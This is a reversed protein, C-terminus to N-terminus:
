KREEIVDWHLEDQKEKVVLRRRLRKWEIRDITCDNGDAWDALLERWDDQISSDNPDEPASLVVQVIIRDPYGNVPVESGM